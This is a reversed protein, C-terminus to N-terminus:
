LCLATVGKKLTHSKTHSFTEFGANLVDMTERESNGIAHLYIETTSRNEHGLLRQISGIPVGASDLMSAGFHRLAHFRFYRVGAKECLTQMIRRRNIFPGEVWAKRSRDWYPLLEASRRILDLADAERSQLPLHDRIWAMSRSIHSVAADFADYGM